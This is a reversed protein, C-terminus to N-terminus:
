RGGSQSIADKINMRSGQLYAVIFANKLDSQKKHSNAASYSNFSGILYKYM